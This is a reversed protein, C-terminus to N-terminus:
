GTLHRKVKGLFLQPLVSQEWSACEGSCPVLGEVAAPVLGHHTTVFQPM